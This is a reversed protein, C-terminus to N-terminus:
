EHYSYLDEYNEAKVDLRLIVDGDPAIWWDANDVKFLGSEIKNKFMKMLMLARIKRQRDYDNKGLGTM